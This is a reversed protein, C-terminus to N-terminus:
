IGNESYLRFEDPCKESSDTMNVYALRTWGETSNCLEKM